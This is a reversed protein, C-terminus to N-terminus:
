RRLVLRHGRGHVQGRHPEVYAQPSALSLPPPGPRRTLMARIQARRPPPPARAAPSTFTAPHRGERTPGVRARVRERTELRVRRPDPPRRRGRAARTAAHCVVVVPFFFDAGSPHTRARRAGSSRRSPPRGAPSSSSRPRPPCRLKWIALPTAPSTRARVTGARPRPFGNFFARPRFFRVCRVGRRRSDRAPGRIKWRELSFAWVRNVCVGRIEADSLGAPVGSCTRFM